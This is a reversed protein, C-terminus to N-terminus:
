ARANKPLEEHPRNIEAVKDRMPQFYHSEFPGPRDVYESFSCDEVAVFYHPVKSPIKIEQGETQIIEVQTEPTSSGVPKGFVWKGTRRHMAVYSNADHYDGGRAWGANTTIEHVAYEGVMREVIKGKSDRQLELLEGKKAQKMGATLPM